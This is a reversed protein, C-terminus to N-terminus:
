IKYRELMSENGSVGGSHLYLIKEDTQELLAIWLSPAYLLDFEIGTDMLKLYIDLFEKYPKAFRYKQKPELIKLNSPLPSLALMQEQLYSSDGIVPVTYVKYEPLNKALFLATTGTGSPTAIADIELKQERIEKALALLGEQAMPDAGGQDVIVTQTELNFRLQFIFDKYAAYDIEIHQMGLHLAQLYNGSPYSKQHKSLPKTYYEFVWGKKQALAALALMANSQTGGYSIIKKLKQSPTQVLTYLKRYKNGALYPDLLDDRKVLFEREEIVIKSISSPLKIM